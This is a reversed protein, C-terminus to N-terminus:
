NLGALFDTLDDDDSEVEAPADDADIGLDIKGSSAAAEKAPEGEEAVDPLWASEEEQAAAPQDEETPAEASESAAPQPATETPEEDAAVSEAESNEDKDETVIIAEDDEAESNEDKDETVIVVDDDEAASNEDNDETVIIVEDDEAESNEDNDETVIIVDDDTQDEHEVDAEAPPQEDGEDTEALAEDHEEEEIEEFEGEQLDDEGEQLDDFDTAEIFSGDQDDTEDVAAVAPAAIEKGADVEEDIVVQFKASGVILEDGSELSAETIQSEGVFTGNLSGMDRICLDGDVEYLECHLRSVTPHAITLDAERGRGVTMPLKKLRVVTPKLGKRVLVLKADM